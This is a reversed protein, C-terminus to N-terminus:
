KSCSSVSYCKPLVSNLLKKHSTHQLLYLLDRQATRTIALVTPRLLSLLHISPVALPCHISSLCTQAVQQMDPCARALTVEPTFTMVQPAGTLRNIIAGNGKYGRYERPRNEIEQGTLLTWHLSQKLPGPAMPHTNPCDASIPM